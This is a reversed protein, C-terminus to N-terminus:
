KLQLQPYGAAVLEENFDHKFQKESRMVPAVTQGRLTATKAPAVSTPLKSLFGELTSVIIKTLAVIVTDLAAPLTPIAALFAQLQDIAANIATVIKGLLTTKQTAPATEYENVAAQIATFAANVAAAIPAAAGLGPIMSVIVAFAQLGIGVYTLISDFVSESFVCGTLGMASGMAAFLTLSMLKRRTISFM